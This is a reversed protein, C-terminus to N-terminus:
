VYSGIADGSHENDCLTVIITEFGRLQHPPLSYMYCLIDVM